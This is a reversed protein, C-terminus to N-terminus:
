DCSCGTLNVQQQQQQKSFEESAEENKPARPYFM